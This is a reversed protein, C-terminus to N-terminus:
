LAQCRQHNRRCQYPRFCCIGHCIRSSKRVIANYALGNYQEYSYTLEAQRLYTARTDKQRRISLLVNDKSTYMYQQGLKNIDYMYELRISNIPFEKRYEKRENFSYEVLANYKLKEDRTGYAMYGDFFWNKNLAPTTTGGVRFRAGEIASGSITSNMPGFEFKNMAPDKNTPIYGSVLTTVVKETVYFVPVSRLKVM